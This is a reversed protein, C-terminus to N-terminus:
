IKMLQLKGAPLTAILFRPYQALHMAHRLVNFLLGRSITIRRVMMGCNTINLPDLANLETFGNASKGTAESIVANEIETQCYVPSKVDKLTDIYQDVDSVNYLVNANRIM